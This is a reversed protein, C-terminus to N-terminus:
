SIHVVPHLRISAPLQVRMAVPNIAELIKYPGIWKAALKRSLSGPLQLHDTKLWVLDAAAFTVDRRRANAYRAMDATAKQLNAKVQTHVQSRASVLDQVSQVPCDQLHATATDLPLNVDFGFICEFPSVSTSAHM